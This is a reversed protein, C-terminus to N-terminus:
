QLIARVINGDSGVTVNFSVSDGVNVLVIEENDVVSFAYYIPSSDVKIYFYTTGEINATRIDEVIGSKEESEAEIVSQGNGKLAARYKVLCESMTDGTVVIQYQSMNVLGYMKVLGGADKLSVCYTPQGEIQLLLPFTSTYGLNQVAGEASSMASFEEAGSVEYYEYEKTRKNVFIFGINSEDSVVSTVGTYVYIDDNKPIYNYGDTARIVGKQGFISNLFGDQYKGYYDYLDILVDTPYANDVMDPIVDMNYEEIEGTIADVILIGKVDTGGFLGVRHELISVVWYPYGNEDIEFIPASLLSTPYKFRLLRRLDDNFCGSPSYRIGHELNHIATKQSAMDVTIYSPIGQSKNNMWKFFGDYELPVVRVPRDQYNIQVSEGLTYQSVADVLTGMTRSALLEATDKDMLPVDEITSTYESIEKVKINDSILNAYAKAKLMPSSGLVGLVVIVVIVGLAGGFGVALRSVVYNSDGFIASCICFLGIVCFLYVWFGVSAVTLAPLMFYFLIFSAILCFGYGVVIM